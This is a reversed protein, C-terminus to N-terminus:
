AGGLNVLIARRRCRATAVAPITPPFGGEILFPVRAPLNIAVPALPTAGLFATRGTHSLGAIAFVIPGRRWRLIIAIAGSIISVEEIGQHALEAVVQAIISRFLPSGPRSPPSVV